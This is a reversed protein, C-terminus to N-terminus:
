KHQKASVMQSAPQSALHAQSNAKTLNVNTWKNVAAPYFTTFFITQICNLLHHLAFRCDLSFLSRSSSSAAVM